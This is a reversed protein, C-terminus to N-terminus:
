VTVAGTCTQTGFTARSRIVDTGARDATLVRVTFSGSPAVTRRQGSFVRVTNDTLSVTWLQGVRNSDVEYEVEIRGDEHKAKLKWTVGAGCTGRAEVADSGRAQAPAAALGVAPLALAATLAAVAGSRRVTNRTM